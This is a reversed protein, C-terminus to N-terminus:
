FSISLTGVIADDDFGDTSPGSSEVGIYSVGISLNETAAFEAGISWDLGNGDSPLAWAGDTYGLHGSLSIPTNPIGVGVDGYIYLNDSSGLSDQDPAYAVGVTTEVPGFSYGLSGYLEIVDTDVADWGNPYYYYLVGIDASIGSAIEGSWGGYIDLETHGYPSAFTCTECEELSSGWTGVYFGSSHSVDIGGQIAPDGDSFGVGRFRYQTVIAANGSITFDGTEQAFAPVAALGSTALISAAVIGRISTLM